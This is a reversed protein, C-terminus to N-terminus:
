ILQIVTEQGSRSWYWQSRGVKHCNVFAHRLFIDGTGSSSCVSVHSYNKFSPDSFCTVTISPTAPATSFVPQAYHNFLHLTTYYVSHCIVVQSVLNLPQEVSHMVPFWHWPLLLMSGHPGHLRILSLTDWHAIICACPNIHSTSLEGWRQVHTVLPQLFFHPFSEWM